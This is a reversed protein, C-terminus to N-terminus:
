GGGLALDHEGREFRILMVDGVGRALEAELAAVEVLLHAREADAWAAVFRGRGVVVAVFRGLAVSSPSQRNASSRDIAERHLTVPRLHRMVSRLNPFSAQTSTNRAAPSSSAMISRQCWSNSVRQGSACSRNRTQSPIAGASIARM